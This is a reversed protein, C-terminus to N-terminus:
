KEHRDGESKLRQRLWGRLGTQQADEQVKLEQALLKQLTEPALHRKLMGSIAVSIAGTEESVIVVVADSAESMGIGARHRTGLEANLRPNVSLPLVCGAAAARDGCVILAGDHLAAKPFFINCLLQQSIRADIVTGNTFYQDLKTDREFVILAGIRKESMEQCALVTQEIVYDIEGVQEKGTFLETLSKAGIRELGRRLEPQFIIILAFAGLELVFNLVYNLAHMQFLRTFWFVLLIWFISRAIRAAATKRVLMIIRYFLYAVVLIDIIDMIGPQPILSAYERLSSLLVKM